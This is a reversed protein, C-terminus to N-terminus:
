GAAEEEAPSLDCMAKIRRYRTDVQKQIMAIEEDSVHRYKGMLRVYDEVPLVKKPTYTFRFRGHEAEWLPYYNTDVAKQAINITQDTPYRWGTTCPCLLHVYAMGEKSAEKAKKLKEVYDGINSVSATATYPINHMAMILPLYKPEKEKGRAFEGVPTTSTWSFSPTCSSRQMGTNMYGENDLCLFIMKEGREAAGSLSQFGVDGASVDGAIVVPTGEKGTHALYRAVGSSIAAINTMAGMMWPAKTYSGQSSGMFMLISCGPIGFLMIDDGLARLAHRIGLEEACGQCAIVGHSLKEDGLQEKIKRAKPFSFPEKKKSM